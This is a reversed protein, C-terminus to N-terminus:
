LTRSGHAGRRSPGLRRRARAQAIAGPRFQGAGSRIARRRHAIHWVACAGRDGRARPCAGGERSAASAAPAGAPPAAGRPSIAGPFEPAGGTNGSLAARSRGARRESPLFRGSGVSTASDHGCNGLWLEPYAARPRRRLAAEAPRQINDMRETIFCQKARPPWPSFRKKRDPGAAFMARSRCFVTVPIAHAGLLASRVFLMRARPRAIRGTGQEGFRHGMVLSAAKMVGFLEAASNEAGVRAVRVAQMQEAQDRAPRSAVVHADIEDRLAIPSSEPM